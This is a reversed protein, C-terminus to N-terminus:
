RPVSGMPKAVIMLINAQYADGCPHLSYAIKSQYHPNHTRHERDKDAKSGKENHLHSFHPFRELHLTDNNVSDFELLIVRCFLVLNPDIDAAHNSGLADQMTAAADPPITASTTGFGCIANPVNTALKIKQPMPTGSADITM